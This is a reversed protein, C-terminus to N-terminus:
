VFLEEYTCELVSMIIEIENQHFRKIGNEKDCYSTGLIGIKKAIDNQTYGKEIRKEKLKLHKM